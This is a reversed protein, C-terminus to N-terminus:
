IVYGPKNQIKLPRFSFSIKQFFTSILKGSLVNFNLLNGNQFARSNQRSGKFEMVCLCCLLNVCPLSHPKSFVPCFEHSEFHDLGLQAATTAEFLLLGTGAGFNWTPYTAPVWQRWPLTLSDCGGPSSLLETCTLLGQPLLCDVPSLVVNLSPFYWSPLYKDKPVEM